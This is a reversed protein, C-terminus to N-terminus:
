PDVKIEFTNWFGRTEAEDEEEGGNSNKSLSVSSAMSKGPSEKGSLPQRQLTGSKLPDLESVMKTPAEGDISNSTDVASAKKLLSPISSARPTPPVSPPILTNVRERSTSETGLQSCVVFPGRKASSRLWNM